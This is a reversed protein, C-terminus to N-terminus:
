TRRPRRRRRLDEADASKQGPQDQEAEDQKEQRQSPEMSPHDILLLPFRSSEPRVQPRDILLAGATAKLARPAAGRTPTPTGPPSTTTSVNSERTSFPLASRSGVFRSTAM